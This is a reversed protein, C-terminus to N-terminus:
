SYNAFCSDHRIEADRIIINYDKKPFLKNIRDVHNGQLAITNNKVKTSCGFKKKLMKNLENIGIGIGVDIDNDPMNLTLVTLDRIHLSNEKCVIKIHKLEISM